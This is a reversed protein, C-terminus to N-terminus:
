RMGLERDFLVSFSVIVFPIIDIITTPIKLFSLFLIDFINDDNKDIIRAIELLNILQVFLTVFFMNVLIYRVKMTFLYLFIKNYM